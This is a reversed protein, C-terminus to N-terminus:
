ERCGERGVGWMGPAPQLNVRYQQLAVKDAAPDTLELVAVAGARGCLVLQRSDLPDVSLQSFLESGSGLERKTL